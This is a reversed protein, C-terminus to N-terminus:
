GRVVKDPKGSANVAIELVVIAPKGSENMTKPTTARATCTISVRVFSPDADM